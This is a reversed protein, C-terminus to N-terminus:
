CRYSVYGSVPYVIRYTDRYGIMHPPFFAFDSYKVVNLVRQGDFTEIKFSIWQTFKTLYTFHQLSITIEAMCQWLSITIEVM